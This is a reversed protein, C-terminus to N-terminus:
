VNNNLGLEPFHRLHVVFLDKFSFLFHESTESMLRLFEHWLKRVQIHSTLKGLTINICYLLTPKFKTQRFVFKSEVNM